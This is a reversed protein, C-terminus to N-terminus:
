WMVDYDGESTFGCKPCKYMTAAICPNGGRDLVDEYREEQKNFWEKSSKYGFYKWLPTAEMSIKCEPCLGSAADLSDYMEQRDDADCANCLPSKDWGYEEDFYM